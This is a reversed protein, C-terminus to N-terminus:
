GINTHIHYLHNLRWLDVKKGAFTFFVDYRPCTFLGQVPEAISTRTFSLFGYVFM